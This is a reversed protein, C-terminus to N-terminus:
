KGSLFGIQLIASGTPNIVMALWDYERLSGFVCKMNLTAILVQIMFGTEENIGCSCRVVESGGAGGSGEDEASSEAELNATDVRLVESECSDNTSGGDLSDSSM